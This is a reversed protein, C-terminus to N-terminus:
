VCQITTAADRQAANCIQELPFCDRNSSLFTSTGCGATSYQVKGCRSQLKNNINYFMSSRNKCNCRSAIRIKVCEYEYHDLRELRQQDISRDIWLHISNEKMKSLFTGRGCLIGKFFCYNNRCIGM